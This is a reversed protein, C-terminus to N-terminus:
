SPNSLRQYTYYAHSRTELVWVRRGGVTDRVWETRKTAHQRRKADLFLWEDKSISHPIVTVRVERWPKGGAPSSNDAEGMEVDPIHITQHQPQSQSSPGAEMGEFDGSPALAKSAERPTAPGANTDMGYAPGPSIQGFVSPQM